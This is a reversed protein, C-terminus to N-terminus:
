LCGCTLWSLLLRDTASSLRWVREGGEATFVDFRQRLGRKYGSLVNPEDDVLLIKEKM